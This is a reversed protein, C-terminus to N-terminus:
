SFRSYFAHVLKPRCKLSATFPFGSGNGLGQLEWCSCYYMFLKQTFCGERIFVKRYWVGSDFLEDWYSFPWIFVSPSVTHITYNRIWLFSDTLFCVTCYSIICHLALCYLTVCYLVICHLVICYLTICYLVNCYLVVCHLATASLTDQKGGHTVPLILQLLCPTKEKRVSMSILHRYDRTCADSVNYNM